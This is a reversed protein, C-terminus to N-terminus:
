LIKSNIKIKGHTLQTLFISIWEKSKPQTNSILFPCLIWKIVLKITMFPMYLTVLTKWALERFTLM